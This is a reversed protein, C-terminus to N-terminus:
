IPTVKSRRGIFRMFLAPREPNELREAIEKVVFRTVGPLELALAEEMEVWAIEDLEGCDPQRELSMLAEAPALLFRADFRKPLMPPTVARAVMQLTSLDAVANQALFERWPGAAPRAPAPRAILLGTEEFTERIAALALARARAPPAGQGLRRKTEAPLEGAHPAHFDARDIRGGPFVWKGPMFSHGEHRRGMLLRPKVGDRRLVILTAADRPKVARPRPEKGPRADFPGLPDNPDVSM